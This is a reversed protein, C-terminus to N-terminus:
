EPKAEETKTEKHENESEEEHDDKGRIRNVIGKTQTYTNSAAHGVTKAAHGIAGVGSKAAHGIAGVGSKAAHGISGIGSKFRSYMTKRPKKPTTNGSTDQNTSSNSNDSGYGSDSDYGSGPNDEPATGEFEKLDIDTTPIIFERVFATDGLASYCSYTDKKEKDSIYEAYTHPNLGNEKLKSFKYSNIISAKSLKGDVIEHSNKYKDGDEDDFTLTNTFYGFVIIILFFILLTFLVTGNLKIINWKYLNFLLIILVFSLIWVQKYRLGIIVDRLTYRNGNEDNGNFTIPIYFFTYFYLFFQVFFLYILSIKFIIFGLIGKIIILIIIYIMFFCIYISNLIVNLITLDTNYYTPRRSKLLIQLYNIFKMFTFYIIYLFVIFQIVAVTYMGVTQFMSTNGYIMLSLIILASPLFLIVSDPLFHTLYEYCFQFLTINFACYERAIDSSYEAIYYFYNLIPYLIWDMLIDGTNTDYLKDYTFNEKNNFERYKVWSSTTLYLYIFNSSGFINFLKDINSKYDFTVYKYWYLNESSENGGGVQTSPVSSLPTSPVSSLPTSPVSSLPASPVSSPSSSQLPAVSSSSQVPAITSSSSQVSPVSSSSQVSPVSSSSESSTDNGFWSSNGGKKEVNFVIVDVPIKSPRVPSEAYIKLPIKGMRNIQIQEGKQNILGSEMYREDDATSGIPTKSKIFESVTNFPSCYGRDKSDTVNNYIGTLIRSQAIKCNFLIPCGIFVLTAIFCGIHYMFVFYFTAIKEQVQLNSKKADEIISM